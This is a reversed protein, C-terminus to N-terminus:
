LHYLLAPILGPFVFALVAAAGLLLWDYWPVRIRAPENLRALAAPWLDRTLEPERLPPIALRLKGRLNNLENDNM